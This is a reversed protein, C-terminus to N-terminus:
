SKKLRLARLVNGVFHRFKKYIIRIPFSYHWVRVYLKYKFGNMNVPKTESLTKANSVNVNKPNRYFEKLVGLIQDDRVREKIILNDGRIIYGDPLVKIVRHLVYKDGVKYLPVDYKKLRGTKPKLVITDRRHRLMPYMSIGVTTGAYFGQKEIVDEIKINGEFQNM